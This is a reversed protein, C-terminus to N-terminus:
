VIITNITILIDRNNSKNTIIMLLGLCVFTDIIKNIKPEAKCAGKFIQKKIIHSNTIYYFVTQWALVWRLLIAQKSFQYSGLEHAARPRQLPLTTDVTKPILIQHSKKM